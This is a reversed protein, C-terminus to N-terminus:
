QELIEGLGGKTSLGTLSVSTTPRSITENNSWENFNVLAIRAPTSGNYAAYATFHKGDLTGNVPIQAVSTKGGTDGIFEATPPYAYYAGRTQAPSGDSDFPQWVSQYSAFVSEYYIGKIGISMCYLLYDTRWVASGFGSMLTENKNGSLVIILPIDYQALYDVWGKQDEV